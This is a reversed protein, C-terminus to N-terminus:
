LIEKLKDFIRNKFILRDYLLFSKLERKFEIKDDGGYKRILDYLLENQKSTFDKKTEILQNM